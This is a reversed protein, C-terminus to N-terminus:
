RPEEIRHLRGPELGSLKQVGRDGPWHVRVEDIEQAGGLGFTLISEVQALYSRTPMVQQRQTRGGSSVEVRAGIADRNGRTGVLRLRIWRNGLNQDNRLLLPRGGTQTIVVDLDGDADIDAYAASRGVVPRALDGTTTGAVPVFSSHAGAGCNWFLQSPQRYHQSEQVKNIDEELHGNTQLLDPRGDLDYDFFFLGFSLMQRSVPGIGSTIADDTFLEHDDTVYFSSMENAFNGVGVGLREDGLYYTGDVGMAGTSKGSSDYALGSSEGIEEFIGGGKNRYLFNQVTDNAVIVDMWGDGEIDIPLLALAKAVPKGTGATEVHMGVEKAVEEFTGDGRNRFLYPQAGGYNTPPGYARGVGDLRYDLRMDITPSWQVYNCVFLDLDGDNDSDFFGASTSWAEPDGATASQVTVDVFKGGDNRYLHNEGVCTLYVDVDGDNDYDGVAAGMAYLTVGLGSVASVDTLKGGDNRYLHTTAPTSPASDGPWTSGNVLLLDPDDDGDYDLFACGPGMTEPLLKKGRAGNEHVFTIGSAGTIDTFRVTPASVEITQTRPLVIEKEQVEEAEKEGGRLMVIGVVIGAIVLAAVGSWILASRIARADVAVLEGEPESEQSRADDIM